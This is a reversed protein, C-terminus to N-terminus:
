IVVEIVARTPPQIVFSVDSVFGMCYLIPRILNRTAYRISGRLWLYSSGAPSTAKVGIITLGLEDDNEEEAMFPDGVIDSSCRDSVLDILV